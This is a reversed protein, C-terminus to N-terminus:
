NLLGREILRRMAQRDVKGTSGTPLDEVVHIVDPIKHRELYDGAWARLDEGVLEEGKRPVVALHIAEGRDPDEVGTALANAIGAHGLFVAEVELPAIKNGARLILDKIRGVLRLAGSDDREALDGTRFWDGVCADETLDPADLYGQMRWPSRIQLEGSHRDLRWEIGEGAHGITGAYRDYDQPHVFFDSTGTETLGYIDGLGAEPFAGRVQLGLAAPLPEGGALIHGGFELAGGLDMLVRLMTPVVPFRDITGSALMASVEGPDFRGRLHLTGGNLLTLWTAWQGFSFTLQLGVFANEGAQWGTMREIMALKNAARARSLVVGKPVGTSGSTFIITSADALLTRSPPPESSCQEIESDLVFRNGLQKCLAAVVPKPASRHVPVVVGGARWVALFAPIDGAVNAVPVLVPESEHLGARRLKAAERDAGAEVEGYTMTRNGDAIAVRARHGRAALRFKQEITKHL